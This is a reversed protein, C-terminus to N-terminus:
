RAKTVPLSGLRHLIHDRVAAPADLNRLADPWLEQARSVTNKVVVKVIREAVGAKKAMAGYTELTEARQMRDIAMNFAFGMFGRLAPVCTIDYAPALEPNIGDRYIVSFNKLHDDSNGLLTNVVRRVFLQRVDEIGRSSLLNLM